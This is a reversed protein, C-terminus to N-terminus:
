DNAALKWPKLYLKQHLQVPPMKAVAQAALQKRRSSALSM